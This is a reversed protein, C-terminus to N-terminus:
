FVPAIGNQITMVVLEREPAASYDHVSGEAMELIDGPGDEAVLLCAPAERLRRLAPERLPPNRM